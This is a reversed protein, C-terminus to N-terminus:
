VITDALYINRHWLVHFFITKIIAMTADRIKTGDHFKRHTRLIRFDTLEYNGVDIVYIYIYAFSIPVELLCDLLSLIGDNLHKNDASIAVVDDALVFVDDAAGVFLVNTTITITKTKPM